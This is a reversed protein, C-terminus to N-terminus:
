RPPQRRATIGPDPLDVVGAVPDAQDLRVGPDGSDGSRITAERVWGADVRAKGAAQPGRGAPRGPDPDASMQDGVPCGYHFVVVPVM